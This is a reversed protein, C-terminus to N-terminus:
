FEAFSKPTLDHLLYKVSLEYPLKQLMCENPVGLINAYKCEHDAKHHGNRITTHKHSNCRIRGNYSMLDYQKSMGPSKGYGMM